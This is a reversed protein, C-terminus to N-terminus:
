HPPKPDGSRGGGAFGELLEEAVSYEDKEDAQDCGEPAVDRSEDEDM